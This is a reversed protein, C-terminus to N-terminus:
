PPLPASRLRSWNAIQFTRREYRQGLFYSSLIVCTTYCETMYLTSDTAGEEEELDGAVDDAVVRADPPLVDRSQLRGLRQQLLGDDEREDHRVEEAADPVAVVEVREDMTDVIVNM